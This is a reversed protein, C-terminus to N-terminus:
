SKAPGSDLSASGSGLFTAGLECLPSHAGHLLTAGVPGSHPFAWAVGRPSSMGSPVVGARHRSGSSPCAQLDTVSRQLNLSHAREGSLPGQLMTVHPGTVVPAGPSRVLWATSWAGGPLRVPSPSTGLARAPLHGLGRCTCHGQHGWGPSWERDRDGRSTGLVRATNRGRATWQGEEECCGPDWPCPGRRTISQQAGM